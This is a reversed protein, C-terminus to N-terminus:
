ECGSMSIQCTKSIEVSKCVKWSMNRQSSEVHAEALNPAAYAWILFHIHERYLRLYFVTKYVRDYQEAVSYYNWETLIFLRNTKDALTVQGSFLLSECFTLIITGHHRFMTPVGHIYDWFREKPFACPSMTWLGPCKSLSQVTVLNILRIYTQTM